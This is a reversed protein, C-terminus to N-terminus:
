RPGAGWRAWALTDLSLDDQGLAALLRETSAPIFPHLLVSVVRLGEALTFLVQDLRGAQEEDKSLQWPEEDQVYRNLRKIRQWIEDLAPTLEVQDIRERVVEVLGEFDAMLEEPPQADPVVVTGFRGIM